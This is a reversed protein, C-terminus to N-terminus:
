LLLIGLKNIIIWLMTIGEQEMLIREVEDLIVV